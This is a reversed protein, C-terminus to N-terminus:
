SAAYVGQETVLNVLYRYIGPAYEGKAFTNSLVAHERSDCEQVRMVAVLSSLARLMEGDNSLRTLAATADILADNTSGYFELLQAITASGETVSRREGPLGALADHARSLDARLRPPLRNLDRGALFADMAGIARDTKTQQASLNGIAQEQATASPSDAGRLGLSLAAAARETQLEDVADTMRVSLEALDEISGIADATQARTRASEEIEASLLLVGIVPIGALLGLRLAVKRLSAFM